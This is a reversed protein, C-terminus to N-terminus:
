YIGADKQGKYFAFCPIGVGGILCSLLIGKPAFGWTMPEFTKHVHHHGEAGSEYTRKFTRQAPRLARALRPALASM